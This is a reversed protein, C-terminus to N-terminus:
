IFCLDLCGRKNCVSLYGADVVVVGTLQMVLYPTSNVIINIHNESFTKVCFTLSTKVFIRIKTFWGSGGLVMSSTISRRFSM